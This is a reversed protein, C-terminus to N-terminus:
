DNKGPVNCRRTLESSRCLGRHRDRVEIPVKLLCGGIAIPLTYLPLYSWAVLALSAEVVLSGSCASDCHDRNQLRYISIPFKRTFQTAFTHSLDM